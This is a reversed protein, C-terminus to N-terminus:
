GPIRHTIRSDNRRLHRLFVVANDDIVIADSFVSDHM